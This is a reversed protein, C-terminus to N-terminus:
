SKNVVISYFKKHKSTNSYAKNIHDVFCRKFLDKSSGIYSDIGNNFEYIGPIGKYKRLLNWENPLRFSCIPEIKCNIRQKKNASTVNVMVPYACMQNSRYKSALEIISLSLISKIYSILLPNNNNLLFLDLKAKLKPIVPNSLLRNDGESGAKNSCSRLPQCGVLWHLVALSRLGVRASRSLEEPLVNTSGM